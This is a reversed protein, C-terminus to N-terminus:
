IYERILSSVVNQFEHYYECDAVWIIKTDDKVVILKTGDFFFRLAEYPQIFYYVGFQGEREKINEIKVIDEATIPKGKIREDNINIFPNFIEKGKRDKGLSWSISNREIHSITVETKDVLLKSGIRIEEIRM